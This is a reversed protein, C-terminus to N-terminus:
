WLTNKEDGVFVNLGKTLELATDKYFMVSLMAKM